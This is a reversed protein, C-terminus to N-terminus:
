RLLWLVAATVLAVVLGLLCGSSKAPPKPDDDAAAVVATLPDLGCAINTIIEEERQDV